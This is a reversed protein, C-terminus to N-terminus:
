FLTPQDFNIKLKKAKSLNRYHENKQMTPKLKGLEDFYTHQVSTWCSINKEELPVNQFFKMCFGNDKNSDDDKHYNLECNGCNKCQFTPLIRSDEKKPEIGNFVQHWEIKQNKM